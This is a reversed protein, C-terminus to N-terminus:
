INIKYTRRYIVQLCISYIHYDHKQEDNNFFLMYLNSINKYIQKISIQKTKWKICLLM